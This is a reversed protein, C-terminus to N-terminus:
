EKRGEQQVRCYEKYQNIIEEDELDIGAGQLLRAFVLCRRGMTEEDAPYILPNLWINSLIIMAEALEGPAETQISGDAIGQEIVPKVYQPAVMEYIEQIQAALFRPNELLNPAIRVLSRQNGNSVAARFLERLKDEGNLSADDRIKSLLQVNEEGMRDCVAEFIDEKSGFHHYIAGKSLKTEDIIDQLSTGDYGKELFLHAAADLIKRVTEEPYKNRAM